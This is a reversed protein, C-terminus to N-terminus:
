ISHSLFVQNAIDNLTVFSGLAGLRELLRSYYPLWHSASSGCLGIAGFENKEISALVQSEWYDYTIGRQPIEHAHFAVPIKVLRNQLMPLASPTSNDEAIWEFNHYCLDMDNLGSNSESHCPRYGKLRYDIERCKDLQNILPALTLKERLNNLKTTTLHELSLYAIPPLSRHCRIKNIANCYIKLLKARAFGDRSYNHVCAPTRNRQMNFSYFSLCHSHYEISHRVTDLLIGPVSYTARCDHEKEVALMTELDQIADKKEPVGKRRKLGLELDHVLCIMRSGTALNEKVIEPRILKHRQAAVDINWWGNKRSTIFRKNIDEDYIRDFLKRDVRPNVYKEVILDATPTCITTLDQEVAFNLVSNLLM